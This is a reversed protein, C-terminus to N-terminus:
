KHEDQVVNLAALVTELQETSLSKLTDLAKDTAEKDKDKGKEDWKQMGEKRDTAAVAIYPEMSKYDSHGTFQMVTTAPIGMALSNCIFTRRADHCSIIQHFKFTDENLANGIFYCDTWDKDIGALEAAEKIYKNLKVNSAAQFVKGNELHIDKYKELIRLAYGSLDIDLNDNTKKTTIHMITGNIDTWRLKKIDSVRLSTFAMYCWVDRARDLYKKSEPFEFSSLKMLEDWTLFSVPVKIVKLATKFQLVNKYLLYGKKDCWNLYWKLFEFNKNTNRNRYNNKVSWDRFEFMKKETLTDFSLHKDFQTLLNKINHFKKYVSDTWNREHGVEALYKEFLTFFTENSNADDKKLKGVKTNVYLKLQDTTPIYGSVESTTFCDTIANKYDQIARNIVSATIKEKGHSTGRFAIQNESDWKEIDACYGSYFGVENGNWRVRIMVQGNRKQVFCRINRKIVM